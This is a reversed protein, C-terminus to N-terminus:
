KAGPRSPKEEPITASAHRDLWRATEAYYRAREVQLGDDGPADLLAIRALNRYTMGGGLWAAVLVPAARRRLDVVKCAVAFTCGIAAEVAAPDETRLTASARWAARMDAEELTYDRSPLRRREGRTVPTM